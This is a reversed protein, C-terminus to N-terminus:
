FQVANFLNAYSGPENGCTVCVVAFAAWFVVLLLAGLLGVLSCKDYDKNTM